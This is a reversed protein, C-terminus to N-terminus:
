RPLNKQCIFIDARAKIQTLSSCFVTTEGITCQLFHGHTMSWDTRDVPIDSMIMTIALLGHSSNCGVNENHNLRIGVGQEGIREAGNLM